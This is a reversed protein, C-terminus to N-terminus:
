DVVQAESFANLMASRRPEPSVHVIYTRQIEVSPHMACFQSFWFAEELTENEHWTTMVFSDEPIEGFNFMALNADDVSTDWDSCRKGWAMMYLCGSRVLWESIQDRWEPTVETEIVVVAKFPAAVALLPPADGANLHLYELTDM